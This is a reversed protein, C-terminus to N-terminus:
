LVDKELINAYAVEIEHAIEPEHRNLSGDLFPNASKAPIRVSHAFAHGGGVGFSLVKGKASTITHARSGNLVALAYPAKATDPQVEAVLGQQHVFLSSSLRGSQRPAESKASVLFEYMIERFPEVMEANIKAHDALHHAIATIDSVDVM